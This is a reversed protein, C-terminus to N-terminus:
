DRCEPSLPLCLETLELIAKDIYRTRACALSHLSFRDSCILFLGSIFILVKNVDCLTYMEFPFNITLNKVCYININVVM